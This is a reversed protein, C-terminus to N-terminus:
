NLRKKHKNKPDNARLSEPTYGTARRVNDGLGIRFADAMNKPKERVGTLINWESIFSYKKM